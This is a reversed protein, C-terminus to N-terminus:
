IHHQDQKEISVVYTIEVNISFSLIEMTDIFCGLSRSGELTLSSFLFLPLSTFPSNFHVLCRALLWHYPGMGIFLRYIDDVRPRCLLLPPIGTTVM